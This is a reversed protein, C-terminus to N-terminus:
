TVVICRLDALSPVNDGAAVVLIGVIPLAEAVLASLRRYRLAYSTAGRNAAAVIIIAQQGAAM